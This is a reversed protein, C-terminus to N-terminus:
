LDYRTTIFGQTNLLEELKIVPIEAGIHVISDKDEDKHMREYFEVIHQATKEFGGKEFHSALLPIGYSGLTFLLFDQTVPLSVEKHEHVPSDLIYQLSHDIQFSVGIINRKRKKLVGRIFKLEATHNKAHNKTKEGILYVHKM